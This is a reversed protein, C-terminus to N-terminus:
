FGTNDEDDLGKTLEQRVIKNVLAGDAKGKVEGMLAGMVRGLDQSSSSALNKIVEKVKVRLEDESLQKPMYKALIEMEKEEKEALEGRAGKKYEKIAEKRKKIESSIVEVIEESSLGKDKKKREIERNRIATILMRLVSLELVRKAKLAAKLDKQIKEALKTM